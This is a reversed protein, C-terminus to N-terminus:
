TFTRRQPNKNVSWVSNRVNGGRIPSKVRSRIVEGGKEQNRSHSPDWLRNGKRQKAPATSRVTKLFSGYSGKKRQVRGGMGVGDKRGAGNGRVGKVAEEGGWDRCWGGRGGKGKGRGKEGKL